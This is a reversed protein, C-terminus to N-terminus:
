FLSKEPFCCKCPLYSLYVCWCCNLIAIFKITREPSQLESAAIESRKWWAAFIVVVLALLLGFLAAVATNIIRRPSDPETPVAAQSALAVASIIEDSSIREEEVRHALANYTESALERDRDLRAEETKMEQRQENLNVAPLHVLFGEAPEHDSIVHYEETLEPLNYGDDSFGIDSPMRVARSWHSVWRWFPIESHGKFRWKPAEGYHRKLGVSNNDNKFFKGLMDIHGMYGPAESSTGLETYDNPSATATALLRYRVKRM